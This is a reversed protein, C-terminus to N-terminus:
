LFQLHNKKKYIFWLIIDTLPFTWFVVILFLLSKKNDNSFWLLLTWAIANIFEFIRIQKRQTKIKFDSEYNKSLISYECLVPIILILLVLTVNVFVSFGSEFVQGYTLIIILFILTIFYKM